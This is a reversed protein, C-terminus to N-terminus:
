RELDQDKSKDSKRPLKRKQSSDIDNQLAKYWHEFDLDTKEFFAGSSVFNLDQFYARAVVFLNEDKLTLLYAPSNKAKHYHEEGLSIVWNKFGQYAHDNDGFKMMYAVDRMMHSDLEERLRLMRNHFGAIQKVPLDTLIEMLCDGQENKDFSNKKEISQQLLKWFKKETIM